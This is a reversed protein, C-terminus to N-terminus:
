LISVATFWSCISVISQSRQVACYGSSTDISNRWWAEPQVRTIIVTRWAWVHQITGTFDDCTRQKDDQETAHKLNTGATFWSCISVVSRNCQVADPQFSTNVVAGRACVSRISVKFGGHVTWVCCHCCLMFKECSTFVGINLLEVNNQAICLKWHLVLYNQAYCVVFDWLLM